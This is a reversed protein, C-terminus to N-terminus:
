RPRWPPRASRRRREAEQARERDESLGVELFVLLVVAGLGLGLLSMGIVLGATGNIVAACLVGVLAVAAASGFAVIRHRPTM